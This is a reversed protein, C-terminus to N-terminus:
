SPTDWARAARGVEATAPIALIAAVSILNAAIQYWAPVLPDGTQGILWTIVAQTTGGFVTVSIAYAISLGSSRVAMPFIQTILVYLGGNALALVFNLAMNVAMLTEVTSGPATMLVYAPYVMLCFALRPVVVSIRAGFIDSLWAGIPIGVISVVYGFYTIFMAADVPQNLTKIAYTTMYGSVYTSITPGVIALVALLVALSHSGFLNKLVAAGSEHAGSKELTEPLSLRIYLGVPAILLGLVFPIRWGWDYLDAESMNAALILGIGTGTAGAFMQTIGQWATMSARRHPPAAELLYTTAPGVEGGTSFGQILRAIVLIIPAAFGIENFGPTFAVLGTGLAMLLLTVTLAARRGAQDAYAGIVAAGLPRTVFGAGFVTVSALLSLFEAEGPSLGAAFAGAPFFTRGIMLAFFSYVIFDYFELFNGIAVAFVAHQPIPTRSAQDEASQTM